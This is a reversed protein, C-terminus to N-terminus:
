MCLEDESYDDGFMSGSNQSALSSRPKSSQSARRSDLSRRPKKAVPRDRNEKESGLEDDLSADVPKTPQRAADRDARSAVAELAARPPKGDERPYSHSRKRNNVHSPRLALSPRHARTAQQQQQQQELEPGAVSETDRGRSGGAQTPAPRAGGESHDTELGSTSGRLGARTRPRRREVVPSVTVWEGITEEWRYGSFLSRSRADDGGRGGAATSSSSSSQNSALREAYMFDKVNNTQQALSFAAVAKLSALVKPDLGLCELQVFITDLCNHSALAMGRGCSRAVSSVLSAMDSLRHTARGARPANQDTNQRWAQEISAKVRFRINSDGRASGSSLFLAMRLLDKGLNSRVARTSELAVMCSSLIYKLRDGILHIKTIEVESVSTSYLEIEGLWSMTALMTLTSTLTQQTNTNNRPRAMESGSTAYQQKQRCLSPISYSMFAVADDAAEAKSLCRAASAWVHVFDRTALWDQPLNGSSLLLAYQRLLFPTRGYKDAFTRLVPLCRLSTEETFPSDSTKPQNYQRDVLAEILEEAEPLAENRACLDILLESFDDGFLGESIGQRVAKLGDARVVARLHKWGLAQIPAFSELYDYIYASTDVDDLTSVTGNEEAEMREWAELEEIYQPVKRLCMDLLSRSGRTQGHDSRTARLLAELSKYIAELDSHRNSSPQTRLGALRRDLDKQKASGKKLRSDQKCGVGPEDSEEQEPTPRKRFPLPSPVVHGRARRLLPTAAVLEGPVRSKDNQKLGGATASANVDKAPACQENKHRPLRRQAYTLRIKKRPKLWGKAPSQQDAAARSEHRISDEVPNPPAVEADRRLSAIRSLLPRLLRQCRAATWPKSAEASREPRFALRRPNYPTRFEESSM